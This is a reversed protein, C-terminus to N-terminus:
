FDDTHIEQLATDSNLTKVNNTNYISILLFAFQLITTLKILKFYFHM